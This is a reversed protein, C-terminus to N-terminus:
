DEREVLWLSGWPPVVVVGDGWQPALGTLADVPDVVGLAGIRHSPWTRTEGSVNHLVVMPGVPHRRVLGLVAPDHVELVESPVSAHLQPLRARVRALRALGEFVRGQPTSRDHRGEARVWDLRPRHAWRNDEGHGPESAWEPDDVM